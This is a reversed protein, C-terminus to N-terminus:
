EAYLFIFPYRLEPHRAVSMIAKYEGEHLPTDRYKQALLTLAQFVSINM